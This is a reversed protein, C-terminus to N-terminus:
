GAMTYAGKRHQQAHFAGRAGALPPVRPTGHPPRSTISTSDRRMSCPSGYRSTSTDMIHRQLLQLVKHFSQCSSKQPQPQVHLHCVIKWYHRCSVKIQCPAPDGTPRDTKTSAITRKLPHTHWTCEHTKYAFCSCIHHVRQQKLLHRLHM